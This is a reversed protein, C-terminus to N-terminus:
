VCYIKYTTSDSIKSVVKVLCLQTCTCTTSDSIKSVVKVLCLQTCTTSDNIESAM